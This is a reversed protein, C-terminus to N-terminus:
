FVIFGDEDEMLADYRLADYRYAMNEICMLQKKTIVAKDSFREVADMRDMLLRKEFGTKVKLRAAKEMLVLESYGIKVKEKDDERTM